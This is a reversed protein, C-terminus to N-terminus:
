TLSKFREGRFKSEIVLGHNCIAIRLGLHRAWVAWQRMLGSEDIRQLTILLIHRNIMYVVRFEYTPNLKQKMFNFGFKEEMTKNLVSIDILYSVRVAQNEVALKAYKIGERPKLYDTAIETLSIPRSPLTQNFLDSVGAKEFDNQFCIVLAEYFYFLPNSVIKVNNLIMEKFNSYSNPQSPVVIISTLTNQLFSRIFYMFVVLCTLKHPTQQYNGTIINVYDNLVRFHLKTSSAINM